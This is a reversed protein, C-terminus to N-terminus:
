QKALNLTLSINETKKMIGPLQSLIGVIMEKKEKKVEENKEDELIKEIIMGSLTDDALLAMLKEIVDKELTLQAKGDAANYRLPIGESLYNALNLLLNIWSPFVEAKSRGAQVTALIQTINLQLYMKGDKVYYQALNIPSTKWGANDKKKYSATINGDERFTINQLVQQLMSGAFNGLIPAAISLPIPQSLEPSDSIHSLDLTANGASWVFNLPQQAAVNWTGKLANQPMKVDVSMTLKDKQVSGSYKIEVGDSNDTGEFTYKDGSLTIPVNFFNTFLQGPVVGPALSPIASSKSPNLLEKLASIDLAGDMRITASKGDKTKFSVAKGLLPNNAYTLDLTEGSYSKNVDLGNPDGKEDDDSCATFLSLTCLVTFLYLFNKKM